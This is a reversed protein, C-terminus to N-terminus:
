EKRVVAMSVQQVVKGNKDLGKVTFQNTGLHLLVNTCRWTTQDKWTLPSSLKPEVELSFLTFPATGSLTVMANTVTNSPNLPAMAFPKKYDAGLERLVSAERNNCWNIYFQPNPSYSTSADEEAQLWAKFRASNKTYKEHFEALYYHFLRLNYPRELWPQVRGGYFSSNPDGFALDSDWQLFQFPGDNPQQYFFSNKGRGMTFTDWDTIYGRVVTYPLIARPDLYREMESQTYNNSSYLKFFAILDTFDDDGENTRKMWETRYRGANDSGKYSWDADRQDREWNDTFWWEDDIRYLQGHSGHKFNRNLLDNHVPETDERLDIGYNNVVVRVIENECAPQGLLYLWYRTVRNHFNGGAPDNDCYFHDHSRFLRDGPLKFKPRDLGGGRTWPSGSNRIEANYFIEDENSIFTCNWYRNSHRPYKFGFRANNGDGIASLAYSSVVFRETRLDRPVVRDDVVFLAPKEAAARPLVCTQGNQANAQVYFEVVQGNGKYQSLEATYIGDSATADGLTGDDNMATSTWAGNAKDNDLRHFVQVVGLPIASSVNATIKITDKSRPVAPSHSLADVQPVPAPAACSNRAGPTGLNKPVDILFSHAISHDWTQAILRPKGSFWRANFKLECTEGKNMGTADIEVRNPRNDGRGDSIIHLLGNTMFSAWHTGQCLWGKASLGDDSLKTGNLLYNKDTGQKRLVINELILHGDGILHLHLEKFDTPGGKVHLEEYKGVYSYERMASKGSEDSARWASSLANDMWPHILELSSGGGASLEPWDGGSRYDVQNVLNGARDVLRLLEGSHKLKGTFNGVVPINGYAARMVNTDAAVVLYGGAPIKVGKAFTFTVGEVFQWGSVDVTTKGRNFLEIFQSANTLSSPPNYMIENIVVDTNHPSTNPANRSNKAASYWEDAGDPFAQLAEGPTPPQYLHCDLVTNASNILYVTGEGKKLSFSVPWSAFGKAAISGTLPVKDSFNRQSALFLGAVPIPAESANFLEIWDVVAASKFHIENLRLGEAASINPQGRTPESCLAWAGNPKRALSRGDVPLSTSIANVLTSGDPATLYVALANTVSLGSEGFGVSALQGAGVIVDSAIQFKRLNGTTDTLCHGKLNVANTGTNLFEVFGNKAPLVENIVIGVPANASNSVRLRAGFVCDSSTPKSQHVEVAFVNTGALLAASDIQVVGSEEVADVVSEAALTNFQVPGAPMRSRGVEKGNLYYVAGDDVVQDLSVKAGRTGGPSVFRTRFYYTAQGRKLGTKIGPSPLPADEFGLLGGGTPWSADNFNAERWATGLDKGSDQYRWRSGFDILAIGPHLKVEPSPVPTESRVISETGPTGGPARSVTWNRWDDVSRNPNKLVLSHGAGDAAPSWHGRDAYKVTCVVVGNKDKLALREDGHKMKGSWPGYVRVSESIQYAARLVPASTGCVVIREFPKLFTVASNDASFEPFEYRIGGTLQWRAIDFPTATNNYIEVYEPKQGAPHYMIESIVVQEARAAFTTLGLM